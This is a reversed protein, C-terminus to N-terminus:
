RNNQRYLEEREKDGSRSKNGGESLFAAALLCMCFGDPGCENVAAECDM